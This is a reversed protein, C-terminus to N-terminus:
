LRRHIWGRTALSTARAPPRFGGDEIEWTPYVTGTAPDTFPEITYVADDLFEWGIQNSTQKYIGLIGISYVNKFQQEAGLSFQIAQPAELGPDVNNLVPM